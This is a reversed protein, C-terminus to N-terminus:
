AELRGNAGNRRPDADFDGTAPTAGSPTGFNQKLVAFDDLDVDGDGDADGHPGDARVRFGIHQAQYGIVMWDIGEPSTGENMTAVALFADMGTDAPLPGPACSTATPPLMQEFWWSEGDSELELHLIDVLPDTVADWTISADAAVDLAGDLPHTIAPIQTPTQLDSHLVVSRTQGSPGVLTITYDGAVVGLASLDALSSAELDFGFGSGDSEGAVPWTRGTPTTISGAVINHGGADITLSPGILTGGGDYTNGFILDVSDAVFPEGDLAVSLTDMGVHRSDSMVDRQWTVNEAVQFTCTASLPHVIVTSTGTHDPPCYLNQYGVFTRPKHYVDRGAFSTDKTCLIQAQFHYDVGVSIATASWAAEGWQSDSCITWGAVTNQAVVIEQIMGQDWDPTGIGVYFNDVGAPVPETFRVTFDITQLVSDGDLLPTDVSRVVTLGPHAVAPPADAIIFLPTGGDALSQQPYDWIYVPGPEISTPIPDLEEFVGPAELAVRPATVAEGARVDMTAQWQSRIPFNEDAIQDGQAMITSSEGLRAFVTSGARATPVGALCLVLLLHFVGRSGHIRVM